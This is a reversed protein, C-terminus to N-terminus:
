EPLTAMLVRRVNGGMIAAIDADSYGADVLAATIADIRSTDFQTSVAGDFDSGLAIHQVGVLDRIHNMAKVIGAPSNDCVAAEWYGVGIVGGTKAVGRVEDDTLNRNEKCTAQVGGHSSIVPKAAMALVEAVGTHSLHAIDVIMGTAEMARVTRIGLPTLGGKSEGHMSGALENDFFHTLGAMRFGAKHLVALNEFRGEMNHLGEISLLAGTLGQSKRQDTALTELDRRSRVIRLQGNSAAEAARLKEAHYLSRQLLSSWTRPPQAQAFTLLTINDGDASNGDYNMNKPTKTVSSFVQLAVHGDQLRPLDIQGRDARNLLNRQWLLTDGHLDAIWLSKHLAAVRASATPPTPGTVKNMSRETMGPALTFFAGAVALVLALSIWPWRRRKHSAASAANTATANGSM